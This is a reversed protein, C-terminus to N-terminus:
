RLRRGQRMHQPSLRSVADLKARYADVTWLWAEQIEYAPDYLIWILVDWDYNTAKPVRTVFSGKKGSPRCAKVQYRVNEHRFDFGKQVATSGQMARSYDDVPCGILRAADFESVASTISPANGFAAEWDLALRVLRDRL